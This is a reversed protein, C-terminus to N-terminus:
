SKFLQYRLESKRDGLLTLHIIYTVYIELSALGVELKDCHQNNCARAVANFRKKTGSDSM